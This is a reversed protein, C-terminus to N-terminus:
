VGVMGLPNDIVETEAVPMLRHGCKPCHVWEAQVVNGCSNCKLPEGTGLEIEKPHKRIAEDGIYGDDYLRVLGTGACKCRGHCGSGGSCAPCPIMVFHQWPSGSKATIAIHDGSVFANCGFVSQTDINLFDCHGITPEPSSFTVIESGDEYVTKRALIWNGCEACTM